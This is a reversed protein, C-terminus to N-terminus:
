WYPSHRPSYCCTEKMKPAEKRSSHRRDSKCNHFRPYILLAALESSFLRTHLFARKVFRYSKLMTQVLRSIIM